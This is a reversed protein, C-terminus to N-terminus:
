VTIPASPLTARGAKEMLTNQLAQFNKRFNNSLSGLVINQAYAVDESSVQVVDDREMYLQLSIEALSASHGNGSPTVTMWCEVQFHLGKTPLLMHEAIVIATRDSDEFRQMFQLGDLEIMGSPSKVSLVFKKENTNPKTAKVYQHTKGPYGRYSTFEEWLIEGAKDVACTLPTTVVFDITKGRKADHKVRMDCSIAPTQTTATFNVKYRKYICQVLEELQNVLQGSMAAVPEDGSGGSLLNGMGLQSSFVYDMGNLVSRKQLLTHLAGNVKEQNELISKLRRNTKESVLREKYEEMAIDHWSAPTNQNEFADDVPELVVDESLFKNKKLLEVQTELEQAQERLMKLEERKRQQLRTSSSAASRVRRKKTSKEEQSSSSESLKRQPKARKRTTPTVPAKLEVSKLETPNFFDVPSNGILAQTLSHDTIDCDDIFSLAEELSVLSVDESIM